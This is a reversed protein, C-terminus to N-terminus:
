RLEEDAVASASRVFQELVDLQDLAAVVRNLDISVYEHVLVNRFGPLAALKEVLEPAFRRDRVLNRVAETYDEFREARRASLDSAVDIVVQCIVQLSHLVDNRLSFDDTLSPVGLV